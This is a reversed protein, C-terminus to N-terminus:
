ESTTFINSIRINSSIVGGELKDITEGYVYSRGEKLDCMFEMIKIFTGLM